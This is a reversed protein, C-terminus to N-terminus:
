MSARVVVQRRSGKGEALPSAGKSDPATSTSSGAAEVGRRLSGAASRKGKRWNMTSLWLLAFNFAILVVQCTCVVALEWLAYRGHMAKYFEVLMWPYIAIRMPFFTGWYAASFVSRWSRWQRRAILFFTNIECLGDWCTFVGLAPHRLPFILLGITVVHHLLIVNPLSPVAEPVALLWLFDAVIYLTFLQSVVYTDLLGLLGAVTCAGLVPLLCLNVRDHLVCAPKM